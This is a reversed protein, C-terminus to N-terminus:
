GRLLERARELDAPTNVNFLLREPEGFQALGQEDILAPGLAAVVQQLPRQQELASALAPALSPRYRALLPHYRGGAFPLVIPGERHALHSILEATVFPMDCGCVFVPRGAARELATVIGLLPHSPQQPELWVENEMEPLATDPKAVVVTEIGADAMAALPYSILPRGGLELTAKPAGIRSSRGGALLAGVLTDM